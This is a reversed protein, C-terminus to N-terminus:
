AYPEERFDRSRSDSVGIESGPKNQAQRTQHLVNQPKKRKSSRRLFPNREALERGSDQKTDLPAVAKSMKRLPTEGTSVSGPSDQSILRLILLTATESLTYSLTCTLTCLAHD